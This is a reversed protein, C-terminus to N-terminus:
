ISVFLSVKVHRQQTFLTIYHSWLRDREEESLTPAIAHPLFSAASAYEKMVLYHDMAVQSLRTVTWESANTSADEILQLCPVYQHRKIYWDIQDDLARPVLSLIDHHLIMVHQDKGGCLLYDIPLASKDSKNMSSLLDVALDCGNIDVFRMEPEKSTEDPLPLCLLALSVDLSAHSPLHLPLIGAVHADVSFHSFVTWQRNENLSVVYIKDGRALYLTESEHWVMVPRYLDIRLAPSVNDFPKTWVITKSTWDLIFTAEEDCFAVHANQWKMAWITSTSKITIATEKVGLWGNEHLVLANKEASQAICFKANSRAYFPGIAAAKLSHKLSWNVLPAKGITNESRSKNMQYM